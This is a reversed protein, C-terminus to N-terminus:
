PTEGGAGLFLLALPLATPAFPAPPFIPTLFPPKPAPRAGKASIQPTGKATGFSGRLEGLGPPNKGEGRHERASHSCPAAAALDKFILPKRAVVKGFFFFIYKYLFILFLFTATHAPDGGYRQPLLRPSGPLPSGRGLSFSFPLPSREPIGGRSTEGRKKEAPGARLAAPAPPSPSEFGM